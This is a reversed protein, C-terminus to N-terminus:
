KSVKSQFLSQIISCKGQYSCHIQRIQRPFLLFCGRPQCLLAPYLQIRFGRLTNFIHCPIHRFLIQHFHKATFLLRFSGAALGYLNRRLYIFPIKYIHLSFIHSPDHLFCKSRPVPFPSQNTNCSNSTGSNLTGSGMCGCICAKDPMGFQIYRDHYASLYIVGLPKVGSFDSHCPRGGQVTTSNLRFICDSWRCKM